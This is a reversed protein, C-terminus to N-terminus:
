IRIMMDANGSVIRQGNPSIAISWVANEHGALPNQTRVGTRADWIRVTSDEIYLKGMRVDWIHIFKDRSCSAIHTCDPSFTTHGGYGHFKRTPGIDRAQRQTTESNFVKVLKVGLSLRDEKWRTFLVSLTYLKHASQHAESDRRM